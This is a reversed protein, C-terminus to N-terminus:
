WQHISPQTSRPSQNHMTAYQSQTDALLCDVVLRLALWCHVAM